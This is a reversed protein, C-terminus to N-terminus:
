VSNLFQSYQNEIKDFVENEISFKGYWIYEYYLALSSFDNRLGPALESAYTSNTKDIAFQILEKENLKKLMRLFLYRMALRTDGAAYAKQQLSLFDNEMDNEDVVEEVQTVSKKSAKSFFGKSLFLNYVIFLVFAIALGWLILKLIGSNFFKETASATKIFKRENNSNREKNENSKADFDKLDKDLSKIWGYKKSNKWSNISDHNLEFSNFNILTDGLVEEGFNKYKKINIEPEETKYNEELVEPASVTVTDDYSNNQAFLNVQLSLCVILLMFIKRMLMKCDLYSAM